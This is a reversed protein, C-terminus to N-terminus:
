CSNGSLGQASAAQRPLTIRREAEPENMIQAEPSHGFVAGISPM